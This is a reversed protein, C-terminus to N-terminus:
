QYRLYIFVLMNRTEFTYPVGLDSFAKFTLLIKENKKNNENPHDAYLLIEHDM